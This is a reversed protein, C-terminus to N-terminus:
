WKDRDYEQETCGPAPSAGSHNNKLWKGHDWYALLFSDLMVEITNLKMPVSNHCSDPCGFPSFVLMCERHWSGPAAVGLHHLPLRAPPGWTLSSDEVLQAQDRTNLLWSVLPTSPLRSLLFSLHLEPHNRITSYHPCLVRSCWLSEKRGM